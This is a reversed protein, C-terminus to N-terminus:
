VPLFEMSKGTELVSCSVQAEVTKHELIPVISAWTPCPAKEVPALHKGRNPLIAPLCMGLIKM